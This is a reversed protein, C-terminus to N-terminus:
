LAEKIRDYLTGVSRGHECLIEIAQRECDLLWLAYSLQQAALRNEEPSPEDRLEQWHGARVVADRITVRAL